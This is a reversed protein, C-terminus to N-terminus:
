KNTECIIIRIKYLGSFHHIRMCCWAFILSKFKHDDFILFITNPSDWNNEFVNLRSCTVQWERAFVASESPYPLVHANKDRHWRTSYFILLHPTNSFRSIWHCPQFITPPPSIGHSLRLRFYSPMRPRFLFPYTLSRACTREFVHSLSFSFPVVLSPVSLLSPSFWPSLSLSLRKLLKFALHGPHAGHM